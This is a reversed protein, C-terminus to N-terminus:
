YATSPGVSIPKNEVDYAIATGNWNTMNGNADYGYTAAGAAIVQHPHTSSYTYSGSPGSTVNGLIDYSFSQNYGTSSTNQATTLRHMDDYGFTWGVNAQSPVSSTNASLNTIQG